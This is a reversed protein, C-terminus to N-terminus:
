STAPLNRPPAGCRQRAGLGSDAGSSGPGCAASSGAAISSGSGICLYKSGRGAPDRKSMEQLLEKSSGRLAAKLIRHTRLV